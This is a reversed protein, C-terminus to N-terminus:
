FFYTYRVEQQAQALIRVLDAALASDKEGEGLGRNGLGREGSAICM